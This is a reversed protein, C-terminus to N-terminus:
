DVLMNEIAFKVMAATNPLKLKTLMNTRHTDVTRVSINLTESIKENTFGEVILKLVDKERPTILQESFKIAADSTNDVEPNGDSFFHAVSPSIFIQKNQIKKFALLLDESSNSKLLYADAGAKIAKTITAVDSMMSVIIIKIQPHLRKIETTASIGDIVPMNIDMLVIDFKEKNCKDIAEKGNLAFGAIDIHLEDKLIFKLGEIFLRHDDAVLLKFKKDPM